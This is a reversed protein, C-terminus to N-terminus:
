CDMLGDAAEAGLLSGIAVGMGGLRVAAIVNPAIRTVLPTKAPGVGLIGSWWHAITANRDPLVVQHLFRQLAKKIKENGGLQTTEEQAADLHRAGGLLIRGDINRFYYYGRDYHFAGAVKLGPVPETVLVQNRAPRVELGPLLQRAFGNTAILVRPAELEWGNHLRIRAVAGNSTLRKVETGGILTIGARHSQELLRRMMEGTHLQGEAENLILYRVGGFGFAAVRDHAPAFTDSRGTISRLIRNFDALHDACREYSEREEPRFLEYGGLEQYRLEADGIRKRLRLLGRWRKEVLAWVEDAPRHDLDDLLETMSGFCAFGANRTSAGVPLPGRELVVIRASPAQEKFHLAASLGVIGSGVVLLDIDRFFSAFEWYSQEYHM